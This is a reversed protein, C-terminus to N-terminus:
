FQLTPRTHTEKHSLISFTGNRAQDHFRISIKKIRGATSQHVNTTTVDVKTLYCIAFTRCKRKRKDDKARLSFFFSFIQVILHYRRIMSHSMISRAPEGKNRMLTLKIQFKNKISIVFDSSGGFLKQQRAFKEKEKQCMTSILDISKYGCDM